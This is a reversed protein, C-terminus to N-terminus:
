SLAVVMLEPRADQVAETIVKRHCRDADKEVCLLAITRQRSDKTLNDLAERSGNNLRQQFRARGQEFNGNRFADRNDPPNGLLPEHVYGVGAAELADRLKNKSFGPKRSVPNLRVDYLVDVGAAVLAHVFQDATRGEYGVSYLM